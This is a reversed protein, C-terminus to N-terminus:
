ARKDLESLLTEAVVVVGAVMRQVMESDSCAPLDCEAVFM